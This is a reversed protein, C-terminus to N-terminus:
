DIMGMAHVLIVSVNVDSDMLDLAAIAIVLLVIVVGVTRVDPNQVNTRWIVKFVSLHIYFTIFLYDNVIKCSCDPGQNILYTDICNCKGTSTDCNGKGPICPPDCVKPRNITGGHIKLLLTALITKM